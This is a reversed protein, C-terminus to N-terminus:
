ADHVMVLCDGATPTSGNIVTYTGNAHPHSYFTISVYNASGDASTLIGFASSTDYSTALGNYNIGKFTWNSSTPNSSSNSKSCSCVVISISFVLIVTFLSKM